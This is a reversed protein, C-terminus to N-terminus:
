IQLRNITTSLKKSLEESLEDEGMIVTSSEPFSVSMGDLSGNGIYAFISHDYFIALLKYTIKDSGIFTSQVIKM